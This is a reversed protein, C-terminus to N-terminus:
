RLPRLWSLLNLSHRPVNKPLCFIGHSGFV